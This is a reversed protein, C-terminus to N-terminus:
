SARGNKTWKCPNGRCIGCIADAELELIVAEIAEPTFDFTPVGDEMHGSAMLRCMTRNTAEETPFPKGDHYAEWGVRPTPDTM